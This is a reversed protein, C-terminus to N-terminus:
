GEYRGKLSRGCRHDLRGGAVTVRGRGRPRAVDTSTVRWRSHESFAAPAAVEAKMTPHLGFSGKM